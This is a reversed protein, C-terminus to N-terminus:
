GSYLWGATGELEEEWGTSLCVSTPLYTHLYACLAPGAMGLSSGPTCAGHVWRALGMCLLTHVM